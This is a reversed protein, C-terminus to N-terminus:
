QPEWQTIARTLTKLRLHSVGYDRCMQPTLDHLLMDGTINLDTFIAVEPLKWGLEGLFAAVDQM